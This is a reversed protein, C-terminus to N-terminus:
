GPKIRNKLDDVVTVATDVAGMGGIYGRRVVGDGVNYLLEVSTKNRMEYGAMCRIAPWDGRLVHASLIEGHKEFLPFEERVDQVCLDLEERYNVPLITSRPMGWIVLVNKGPPAYGAPCTNTPSLASFVRRLGTLILIGSYEMLPRDSAVHLVVVPLPPPTEKVERLYDMDFKERGALEITKMPGVNSVVAQARIEIEEEGKKVIIGKAVGDQTLICRAPSRIWVENGKARIVAALAEILGRLGDTAFGFRKFGATTKACAAFQDAPLEHLNPGVMAYSWARFIDIIRKNTTYQTLWEMFTSKSSPEQWVLSRRLAPLVRDIEAMDQDNQAGLSLLARLHGKSPLEYDKGDVRYRSESAEVVNYEAGVEAFVKEQVGGLEAVGAGTFLRFGKHDLTSYRGGIFPLKETVLVQYGAKSLLAGAVMGGIGAGIVVVDVKQKKM